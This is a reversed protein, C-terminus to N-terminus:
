RPTRDEFRGEFRREGAHVPVPLRNGAPPTPCTAWATFACPPNYARNFDLTVRGGAVGQVELFRGGGYTEHGNTGDGFVVLLRGEGGPTALLAHASGELEFRLIAAVPQREAYGMVNVIEVTEGPAPAEAMAEVVLRPDFPFLPIGSFGLRIPSDRDRVRLALRGNRRVLTCSVTGSRVVSPGGGDDALLTAGAAARELEVSAGITPEFRVLEGAVVFEGVVGSACGAYRLTCDQDSGFRHRGDELFDLGVLTLWGDPSALAALRDRHWADRAAEADSAPEPRGPAVSACGVASVAMLLAPLAMRLFEAPPVIATMPQARGCAAALHTEISM